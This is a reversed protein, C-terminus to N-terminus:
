GHTVSPRGGPNKPAVQNHQDRWYQRITNETCAIFQCFQGIEYLISDSFVPLNPIPNNVVPPPQWKDYKQAYDSTQIAEAIQRARPKSFHHNSSQLHRFVERLRVVFNCRKCVLVLNTLPQHFLQSAMTSQYLIFITRRYIPHFKFFTSHQTQPTITYFDILYYSPLKELGQILQQGGSGQLSHYNLHNLEDSVRSHLRLGRDCGQSAQNGCGM